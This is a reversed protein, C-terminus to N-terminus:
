QKLEIYIKLNILRCASFLSTFIVNRNSFVQKNLNQRNLNLFHVYLKRLM